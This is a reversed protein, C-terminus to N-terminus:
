CPALHGLPQQTVICTVTKLDLACTGSGASNSGLRDGNHFLQTDVDGTVSGLTDIFESVM